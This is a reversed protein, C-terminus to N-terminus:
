IQFMKFSKEVRSNYNKRKKQDQNIIAKNKLTKALHSNTKFLVYTYMKIPHM